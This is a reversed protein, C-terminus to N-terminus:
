IQWLHKGTLFRNPLSRHQQWSQKAKEISYSNNEYHPIVKLIRENCFYHDEKVNEEAFRMTKNAKLPYSHIDELSFNICILEYWEVKKKIGWDPKIITPAFIAFLGTRTIFNRRSIM